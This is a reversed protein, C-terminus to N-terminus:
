SGVQRNGLVVEAVGGLHLGSQPHEVEYTTCHTSAVPFNFQLWRNLVMRVHRIHQCVCGAFACVCVTVHKVLEM